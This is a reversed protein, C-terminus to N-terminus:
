GALHRAISPLARGVELSTALKRIRSHRGWLMLGIARSINTSYVRRLEGVWGRYIVRYTSGHRGVAMDAESAAWRLWSSRM